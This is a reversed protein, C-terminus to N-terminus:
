GQSMRPTAVRAGVMLGLAIAGVVFISQFSLALTAAALAPDAAAGAASLRMAGAISQYIFVGPMM